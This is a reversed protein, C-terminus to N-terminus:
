DQMMILVREANGFHARVRAVRARTVARELAPELVSTAVAAPALTVVPEASGAATEALLVLPAAPAVRRIAAVVAPQRAREIALLVPENGTRFARRYVSESDLRGALAEGGRELIRARVRPEEVIWLPALRTEGRGGALRWLFDDACVFLCRM